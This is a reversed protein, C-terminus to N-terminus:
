SKNTPSLSTSGPANPCIATFVPLRNKVRPAYLYNNIYKLVEDRSPNHSGPPRADIGDDQPIWDLRIVPSRSDKPAISRGSDGSGSGSGDGLSGHFNGVTGSGQSSRGYTVAGRSMSPRSNQGKFGSLSSNSLRSQPFCIQLLLM